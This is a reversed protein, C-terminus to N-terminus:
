LAVEALTEGLQKARAQEDAWLKEARARAELGHQTHRAPVQQLWHTWRATEGPLQSQQIAHYCEKVLRKYASKVKESM